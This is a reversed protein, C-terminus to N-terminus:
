EVSIKSTVGDVKILYIGSELNDVNVGDTNQGQSVLVGQSNYLTYSEAVKGFNLIGESIPNPFPHLTTEENELNGKRLSQQTNQYHVENITYDTATCQALITRFNSGVEATFGPSLEIYSNNTNLGSKYIVNSGSKIIVDGTTSAPIKVNNGSKLNYVSYKM